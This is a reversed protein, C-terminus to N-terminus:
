GSVEGTQPWLALARLAARRHAEGASTGMGAPLDIGPVRLAFALGRRECEDVWAAVQRLKAEEEVVTVRAWDLVVENNAEGEFEKVLWPQGRAVAKWDVHRGSDGDRYSRWGAFDDGTSRVKGQGEGSVSPVVPLPQKGSRAPYVLVPQARRLRREWRVLGLPYISSVLLEGIVHRGRPLMGTTVHVAQEGVPLQDLELQVFAGPAVEALPRLHIGFSGRSSGNGVALRLQLPEDAHGESVGCCRVTVASVNRYGVILSVVGISALFFCFLYAVSNQQSAGAYWFGLLVLLYVLLSGAPRMRTIQEGAGKAPTKEPSSM